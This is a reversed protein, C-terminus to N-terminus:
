PSADLATIAGNEDVLFRKQFHKSKKGHHHENNHCDMCLLELNGYDTTFMPDCINEPTLYKKHHVIVGASIIGNAYCRECLGGKYKIYSERCREWTQSKYFAKAFEKAMCDGM